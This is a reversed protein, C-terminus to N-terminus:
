LRKIREHAAFRTLDIPEHELYEVSQSVFDFYHRNATKFNLRGSLKVPLDYAPHMRVVYVNRPEGAKSRWIEPWHYYKNGFLLVTGIPGTCSYCISRQDALRPELGL